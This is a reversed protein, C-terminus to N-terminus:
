DRLQNGTLRLFLQELNACGEAGGVLDRPAGEAVIRGRDVVALRDCLQEAEEMYHTTYVIATGASRLEALRGLILSRSQADIGVTPEDLLLLPPSHLLAAALNARRKMGGSFADIRRDASGELGTASLCEAIRAALARGRLGQLRGFYRLNERATLTPYLAIEQPALGLRRRAGAPDRSADVGCVSVSGGTPRLLTCIVSLTTTKGAGNPGLLGFCEGERVSFDLGDVAPPAGGRYRKVLGRVELVAATSM